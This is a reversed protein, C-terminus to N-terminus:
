VTAPFLCSRAPFPHSETRQCCPKQPSNLRSHPSLSSSLPSSTFSLKPKSSVEASLDGESVSRDDESSSSPVPRRNAHPDLPHDHYFKTFRHCGACQRPIEVDPQRTHRGLCGVRTLRRADPCSSATAPLHVARDLPHAGARVTVTGGALLVGVPPPGPRHAPPKALQPRRLPSIRPFIPCM